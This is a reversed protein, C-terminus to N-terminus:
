QPGPQLSNTDSEKGPQELQAKLEKNEKVLQEYEEVMRECATNYFEEFGKQSQQYLLEKQEKVKKDCEELQKKLEINEAAVFRCKKTNPLNEKECGTILMIAAIASLFM